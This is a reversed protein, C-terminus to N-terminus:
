LGCGGVLSDIGTDGLRGFGEYSSGSTQQLKIVVVTRSCRGLDCWLPALPLTQIQYRAVKTIELRALICSLFKILFRSINVLVCILSMFSSFKFM